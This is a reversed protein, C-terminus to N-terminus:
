KEPPMVAGSCPVEDLRYKVEPVYHYYWYKIRALKSSHHMPTWDRDAATWKKPARGRGGVRQSHGYSSVVLLASLVVLVKLLLM